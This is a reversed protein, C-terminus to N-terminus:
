PRVAARLRDIIELCRDAHPRWPHGATRVWRFEWMASGRGYGMAVVPLGDNAMEDLLAAAGILLRSEPVVVTFQFAAHTRTETVLLRAELPPRRHVLTDGDRRFPCGGAALIGALRSVPDGDPEAPACWDAFPLRLAQAYHNM